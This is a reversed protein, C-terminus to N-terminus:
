SHLTVSTQQLRRILPLSSYHISLLHSYRTHDTTHAHSSHTRCHRPTTSLTVVAAPDIMAAATCHM